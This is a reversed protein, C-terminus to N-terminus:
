TKLQRLLGACADELLDVVYEFGEREDYYPDPIRPVSHTEAFQVMPQIKDQYVGASDLARVESGNNEDMTLILDFERLDAETVRRAQGTIQYGRQSLAQAMRADPPSGRHYSITGASDIDFSSALGADEVQKRFIIEAAPSRCINGMCVFLIRLPATPM